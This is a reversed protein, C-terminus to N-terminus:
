IARTEHHTLTQRRRCSNKRSESSCTLDQFFYMRRGAQGAARDGMWKDRIVGSMSQSESCSVGQADALDGLHGSSRGGLVRRTNCPRSRNSSTGATMRHIRRM